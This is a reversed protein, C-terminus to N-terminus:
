NNLKIASAVYHAGDFEATIIVHDGTHLYKAAPLM